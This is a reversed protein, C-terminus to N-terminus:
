FSIGLGGTIAGVAGSADFDVAPQIFLTFHDGLVLAAQALLTFLFGSANIRGVNTSVFTPTFALTLQSRNGFRIGPGLGYLQISGAANLAIRGHLVGVFGVGSRFRVGAAGAFAFAPLAAGGGILAGYMVGILGVGRAAPEEEPTNAGRSKRSKGRRPAQPAAQVRCEPRLRGDADLPDACPDSSPQSPLPQRPASELPPLPPPVLPERAVGADVEPVPMPPPPPSSTVPPPAVCKGSECVRDGKCDVDKECGAGLTALMLGLMVM